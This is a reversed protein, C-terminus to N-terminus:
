FILLRNIVLFADGMKEFFIIKSSKEYSKINLNGAPSILQCGNFEAEPNTISKM